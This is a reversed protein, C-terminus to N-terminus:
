EKNLIEVQKFIFNDNNNEKTFTYKYSKFKKYNDVDIIKNKDYDKTQISTILNTRESNTFIKKTYADSQYVYAISVHVYINNEDSEYDNIYEIVENNNSTKNGTTQYFVKKYDASYKVYPFSEVNNVFEPTFELTNGYLNKYEKELEQYNIFQTDQFNIKEIYLNGVIYNTKETMLNDLGLVLNYLRYEDSLESVITKNSRYLCDNKYTNKVGTLECYDSSKLLQIKRNIDNKLEETITINQPEKITPEEPTPEKESAITLAVALIILILALIIITYKIAKNQFLNTVKNM